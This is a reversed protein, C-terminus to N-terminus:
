ASRALAATEEGRPTLKVVEAGPQGALDVFGAGRLNKLAEAYEMFEMGSQTMLDSVPLERGDTGALISLLAIPSTRPAPQQSRERKQRAELFASFSGVKREENM